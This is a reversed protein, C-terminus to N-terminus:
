RFFGANRFSDSQFDNTPQALAIADRHQLRGISSVHQLVPGIIDVLDNVHQGRLQKGSLARADKFRHRLRRLHEGLLGLAATM